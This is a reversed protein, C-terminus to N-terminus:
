KCSSGVLSPFDTSLGGRRQYLLYNRSLQGKKKREGLKKRMLLFSRRLLCPRKILGAGAGLESAM